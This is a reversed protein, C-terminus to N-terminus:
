LAENNSEDQLEEAILEDIIQNASGQAFTLSKTVTRRPASHSKAMFKMRMSNKTTQRAQEQKQKNEHLDTLFM